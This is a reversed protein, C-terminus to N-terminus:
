KIFNITKIMYSEDLDMTALKSINGNIKPDELGENKLADLTKLTPNFNYDYYKSKIKRSKAKEISPVDIFEINKM